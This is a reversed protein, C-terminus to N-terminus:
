RRTLQAEPGRNARRTSKTPTDRLGPETRSRSRASSRKGVREASRLQWANLMPLGSVTMATMKAPWMKLTALWDRGYPRIQIAYNPLGYSVILAEAPSM